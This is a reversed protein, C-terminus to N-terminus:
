NHTYQLTYASARFVLFAIGTKVQKKNQPACLAFRLASSSYISIIGTKVRKKRRAKCVCVWTLCENYVPAIIFHIGM